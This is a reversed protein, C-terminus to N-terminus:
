KSGGSNANEKRTAKRHEVSTSTKADVTNASSSTDKKPQSGATAQADAGSSSPDPGSFKSIRSNHSGFGQYLATGGGGILGGAWAGSGCNCLTWLIGTGLAANTGVHAWGRSGYAARPNKALYFASTLSGGLLAGKFASKTGGPAIIGLGAGAATGGIVAWLYRHSKPIGKLDRASVDRDAAFTNGACSFIICIVLSLARRGM